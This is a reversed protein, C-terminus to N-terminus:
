KQKLNVLPLHIGNEFLLLFYLVIITIYGRDKMPLSKFIGHEQLNRAMSTSKQCERIAVLIRAVQFWQIYTNKTGNSFIGRVVYLM